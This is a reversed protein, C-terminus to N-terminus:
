CSESAAQDADPKTKGSAIEKLVAGLRYGSQVVRTEAVAGAAKLYTESLRIPPAETEGV